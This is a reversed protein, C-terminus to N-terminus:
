KLFLMKKTSQFNALQISYFYMGSALQSGVDNTGDWIISYYGAEVIGSKLTKVRQGLMNYVSLNVLGTEPIDFRIETTPNFPNPYNQQLAYKNPVVKIDSSNVRTIIDVLSGDLGVLKVNELTISSSEYFDGKFNVPITIYTKEEGNIAGGQLNASVVKLSNNKMNSSSIIVNEDFNSLM